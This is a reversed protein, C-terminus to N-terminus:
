DLESKLTLIQQLCIRETWPLINIFKSFKGFCSNYLKIARFVNEQTTPM